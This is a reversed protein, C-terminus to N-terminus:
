NDNILDDVTVKKKVEPSKGPEPAAKKPKAAPNAHKETSAANLAPESTPVESSTPTEITVTEPEPVQVPQQVEVTVAPPAAEPQKSTESAAPASSMFIWAGGAIALLLVVCIAPILWSKRPATGLHTFAFDPEDSLSESRKTAAAKGAMAPTTGAERYLEEEFWEFQDGSAAVNQAPSEVDLLLPEDSDPGPLVELTEPLPMEKQLAEELELRLRDQKQREIDAELELRRQEARRTEEQELELRKQEIRRREEELKQQEARLDQERQEALIREREFKVTEDEAVETGPLPDITDSVAPPAETENAIRQALSPTSKQEKISAAVTRIVDRMASASEFRDERRIALCRMIADSLEAPVSPEVEAPPRLPDAHGELMEISRELADNPLSLTLIHYLTAGVAYLDSRGDLKHNVSLLFKEGYTNAFVKQSAPDLGGWLQELPRYHLIASEGDSPASPAIVDADSASAIGATLLKIRFNSTLRLNEPRVDRHIFPTPLGHLYGLADLLQDAWSLVDLLAPRGEESTFVSVLSNGDVSEMVLYQRDVEYFYDQVSLLGEHRIETLVKAEGVFAANAAELQAPTVVKGHRGVNERLVVNTNSVTDYADYIGVSELSSVNNIIRYRGNQLVQNASLM